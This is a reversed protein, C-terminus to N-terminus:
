LEAPTTTRSLQKIRHKLREIEALCDYGVNLEQNNIRAITTKLSEDVTIWSEDVLSISTGKETGHVHLINDPNIFWEDGGVHFQVLRM